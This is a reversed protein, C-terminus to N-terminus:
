VKSGDVRPQQEISLLVGDAVRYNAIWLVIPSKIFEAINDFFDQGEKRCM